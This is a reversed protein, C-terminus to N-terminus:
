NKSWIRENSLEDNIKEKLRLEEEKKRRKQEKQRLESQEVEKDTKQKASNNPVHEDKTDIQVTKLSTQELDVSHKVSNDTTDENSISNTCTTSYQCANSENQNIRPTNLILEM